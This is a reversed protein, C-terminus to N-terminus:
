SELRTPDRLGSLGPFAKVWIEQTADAAEESSFRFKRATAALAEQHRLVIQEWANDEGNLAERVLDGVECM